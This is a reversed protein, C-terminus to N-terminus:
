SSKPGNQIKIEFLQTRDRQEVGIDIRTHDTTLVELASACTCMSISVREVSVVSNEQVQHSQLEIAQRVVILNEVRRQIVYLNSSVRKLEHQSFKTRKSALTNSPSSKAFRNM